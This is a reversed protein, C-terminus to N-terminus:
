SAGESTKAPAPAPATASTGGDSKSAAAEPKSEPTKAETATSKAGYGDAYWGAGKLHFSTHSILKHLSGGCRECKTLPPDSFKQLAEELAGCHHCEYEYIPM